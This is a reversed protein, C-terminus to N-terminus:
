TIISNSTINLLEYQYKFSICPNLTCVYSFPKSTEFVQGELFESSSSLKSEIELWTGYQLGKDRYLVVTVGIKNWEIRERIIYAKTLNPSCYVM